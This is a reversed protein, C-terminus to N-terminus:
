ILLNSIYVFCNILMSITVIELITDMYEMFLDKM